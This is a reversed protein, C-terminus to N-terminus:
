RPPKSGQLHNRQKYLVRNCSRETIILATRASSFEQKALQEAVATLSDPPRRLIISYTPTHQSMDEVVVIQVKSGDILELPGRWFLGLEPSTFSRVEQYFERLIDRDYVRAPQAAVKSALESKSRTSNTPSHDSHDPDINPAAPWVLPTSVLEVSKHPVEYVREDNRRFIYHKVAYRSLPDTTKRKAVVLLAYFFSTNHNHHNVTRHYTQLDGSSLTALGNVHHTHWNGLHEVDSHNQEIHRFIREQHEGDQFFSVPSRQAQPGAEIIGTVRITLTRGDEKFDGIVRGGTEDTDFGDCEDFIATLAAEPLILSIEDTIHSKMGSRLQWM